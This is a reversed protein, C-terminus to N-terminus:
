SPSPGQEGNGQGSSAVASLSPAEALGTPEDTKKQQGDAFCAPPNKELWGLFENLSNAYDAMFDSHRLQVRSSLDGERVSELTQEIRRVPGAIRHSIKLIHYLLLCSTSLIMFGAIVFVPIVSPLAVNAETAETFLRSCFVGLVLVLLVLASILPWSITLIIRRQVERNVVLTRRHNKGKM